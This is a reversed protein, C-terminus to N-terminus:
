RLLRPSHAPHANPDLADFREMTQRRFDRFEHQLDTVDKRLYAVEATILDFRSVLNGLQDTVLCQRENLLTQTRELATVKSTLTTINDKIERLGLLIEQQGSRGTRTM